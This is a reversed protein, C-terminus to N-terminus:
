WNKNQTFEGSNINQNGGAKNNKVSKDTPPTAPKKDGGGKLAEYINKGVTIVTLPNVGGNVNEMEELNMEKKDTM